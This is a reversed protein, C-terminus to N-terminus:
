KSSATLRAEIASAVQAPVLDAAALRRLTELWRGDKRVVEAILACGGDLDGSTATTIGAMFRIEIM